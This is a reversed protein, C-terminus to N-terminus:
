RHREIVRVAVWRRSRRRADAVVADTPAWCHRSMAWLSAPLTGVRVEPDAPPDGADIEAVAVPACGEAEAAADM